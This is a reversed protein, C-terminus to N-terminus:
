GSSHVKRVAGRSAGLREGQPRHRTDRTEGASCPPPLAGIQRAVATLDAYVWLQCGHGGRFRWLDIGALRNVCRRM